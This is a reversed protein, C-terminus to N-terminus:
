GRVMCHCLINRNIPYSATDSPAAAQVFGDRGLEEKAFRNVSNLFFSQGTGAAGCITLLLQLINEQGHVKVNLIHQRILCFAVSQKFNLHTPTGGLYGDNTMIKHAANVEDLWTPLNNLDSQSMALIQCDQSWDHQNSDGM